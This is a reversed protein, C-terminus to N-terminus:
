GQAGVSRWHRNLAGNTKVFWTVAGAFAVVVAFLVGVAISAGAGSSIQRTGEATPTSTVAVSITAVILGGSGALAPLVVWLGTWGSVPAKEGRRTFLSGVEAPTVFPMAIGAVFTLLLAIGGGLGRHSHQQMEKHVKYNYVYSYIGLTVAFLLISIGTRRIQGIPGDGTPESWSPVTAPPTGYATPPAGYGTPPAGNGPPSTGYGAPPASPAGKDLSPGPQGYSPVAQQANPDPTGWPDTM